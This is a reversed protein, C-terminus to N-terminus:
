YAREYLHLCQLSNTMIGLLGVHCQVDPISLKVSWGRKNMHETWSDGIQYNYPSPIGFRRNGVEDLVALAWRGWFTRYTHDKILIYKRSVRCLENLQFLPDACHHLVDISYALDFSENKFPLPAGPEYIMPEFHVDPRRRVDIATLQGVESMRSIQSAFWGDGSGFDLAHEVGELDALIPSLCNLVRVRYANM